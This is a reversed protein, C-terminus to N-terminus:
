PDEPVTEVVPQKAFAGSDVLAQLWCDRCLRRGRFDLGGHDEQCEACPPLYCVPCSCPARPHDYVPDSM